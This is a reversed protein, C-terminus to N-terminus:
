DLVARANRSFIDEIQTPSLEALDVAHKMCLVQEYISLVPRHGTDRETQSVHHKPTGAVFWYRGMAVYKDHFANAVLNNTGFMIRRHDEQKMLTYHPMVDTVALTDYWLNPIDRLREVAQRIPWYTFSRACHALIWKIKPYQRTYQDLDRLNM